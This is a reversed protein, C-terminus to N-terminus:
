TITSIPPRFMMILGNNWITHLPVSRKRCVPEIMEVTRGHKQWSLEEMQGTNGRLRITNTDKGAYLTQYAEAFDDDLEEPSWIPKKQKTALSLM